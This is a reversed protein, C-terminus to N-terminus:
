VFSQVIFLVKVLVYFMVIVRKVVDMIVGRGGGGSVESCMSGCVSFSSIVSVTRGLGMHCRVWKSIPDTVGYCCCLYM